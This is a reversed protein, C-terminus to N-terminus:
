FYRVVEGSEERSVGKQNASPFGYHTANLYESVESIEEESWDQGVGAQWQRVLAKLSNWDTALRLERWHIKSTHCANCYAAYLLKGQPESLQTQAHASTHMGLLLCLAFAPQRSGIM